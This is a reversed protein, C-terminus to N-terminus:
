IHSHYCSRVLGAVHSSPMTKWDKGAMYGTRSHISADTSAAFGTDSAISRNGSVTGTMSM